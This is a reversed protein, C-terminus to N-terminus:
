RLRPLRRACCSHRWCRECSNLACPQVARLPDDALVSALNKLQNGSLSLEAASAPHVAEFPGAKVEVSQTQRLTAPSLAIDFEKREAESLTFRQRALRYGVTSVELVYAGAALDAISFVGQADAM